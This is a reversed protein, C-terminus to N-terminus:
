FDVEVGLGPQDFRPTMVGRDIRFGGRAVDDVLDLHGDLDARDVVPEALAFHLGAAIGIRSEDMCGIMARLGSRGCVAAVGRAELLGGSKMLKINVLGAARCAAVRAADAADRVPEDAMIPVEHAAAVRGMAALDQPAVPQELLEISGAPLARLFRLADAETYGGNADARITIAPGLASRLTRILDVDQEWDEGVKVKLIRFGDAVYRRARELSEDPPAVGLTMSTPIRGRRLGLVRALPAGARRSELDLLAMEVAARAAPARPAAARARRAVEEVLGADSERLLPLLRDDLAARCDADSEGTVEEAPAACGFGTRGDGTSVKLIVNFASVFARGAIRYGERLRFTVPVAEAAVVRIM